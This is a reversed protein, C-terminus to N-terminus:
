KYGIKTLNNGLYLNKTQQIWSFPWFIMLSIKLFKMKVGGRNEIIKTEKEDYVAWKYYIELIFTILYYLLMIWAM